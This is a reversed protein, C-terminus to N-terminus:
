DLWFSMCRYHCAACASCTPSRKVALPLSIAVRSQQQMRHTAPGPSVLQNRSTSSASIKALARAAWYTSHNAAQIHPATEWLHPANYCKILDQMRGQSSASGSAQLTRSADAYVHCFGREFCPLLSSVKM